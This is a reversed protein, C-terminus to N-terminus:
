LFLVGAFVIAGLIALVVIGKKHPKNIRFPLLFLLAMIFACIIIVDHLSLLGVVNLLYFLPFILAASTVPLGIYYERRKDGENDQRTEEDVNFNALRILASLCYLCGAIMGVITGARSEANNNSVIFTIMAPLVGFCILDSCSDIQVGFKKEDETRKRTRAIMGDFMDCLGAFLLCIIANRIENNICQIIGIVGFLCGVYTLYVTYNYYGLLLKHRRLFGPEKKMGVYKILFLM